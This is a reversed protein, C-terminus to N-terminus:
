KQVEVTIQYGDVNNFTLVVYWNQDSSLATVSVSLRKINLMSAPGSSTSYVSKQYEPLMSETYNQSPSVITVNISGTGQWSLTTIVQTTGQPVKALLNASFDPGINFDAQIEAASLARNYIRAEDITGNFCFADTPSQTFGGIFLPDTAGTDMTGNVTQSKIAVGDLYITFTTQSQSQNYTIVAAVYHWTHSLLQGTTVQRWISGNFWEISLGGAYYLNYTNEKRVIVDRFAGDDRPNIWASLTVSGGAYQISPSNSVQVYNQSGDFQLADGFKGAVWNPTPTGQLTGNNGNGSSDGAVTGSGEDFRWWGVLGPHPEVIAAQASQNMQWFAFSAAALVACIVVAAVPKRKIWVLMTMTVGCM